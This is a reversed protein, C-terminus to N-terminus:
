LRSGMRRPYAPLQGPQPVFHDDSMRAVHAQDPLTASFIISEIGPCQRPEGSDVRPQQTWHLMTAGLRLDM